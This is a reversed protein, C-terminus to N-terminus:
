AKKSAKEAISKKGMLNKVFVAAKNKSYKEECEEIQAKSKKGIPVGIIKRISYENATETAATIATAALLNKNFLNGTLAFFLEIFVRNSFYNVIRHLVRKKTVEDVRDTKEGKSQILEDNRYDIVSFYSPILTNFLLYSRVLEKTNLISTNINFGNSIIKSVKDDFNDVLKGKNTLKQYVEYVQQQSKISAPKAIGDTKLAWKGIKEGFGFPKKVIDFLANFFGLFSSAKSKAVIEYNIKDGDKMQNLLMDAFNNKGSACLKGIMEDFLGEDLKVKKYSIKDTFNQSKQAMKEFLGRAGKSYKALAVKGFGLLIISGFALAIKKLTGNAKTEEKKARVIPNKNEQVEPEKEEEKNNVTLGAFKQISNDSSVLKELEKNNMQVLNKSFEEQKGNQEYYKELAKKKSLPVLSKGKILRSVTEIVVTTLVLNAVAAGKNANTYKSLAGATTFCALAKLVGRGIEYGFRDKQAKKAKSDDDHHFRSTNYFDWSSFIGSVTTTALANLARESQNSYNGRSGGFMDLYFKGMKENIPEGALKLTQEKKLIGYLASLDKDSVAKLRGSSLFKSEKLTNLFKSNKFVKTKQLKDIIANPVDKILGPYIPYILKKVLRLLVPSEEFQISTLESGNKIFKAKISTNATAPIEQVKKILGSVENDFIGDLEKVVNKSLDINDIDKIFIKKLIKSAQEMFEKKPVFSGKFTPMSNVSAMSMKQIPSLSGKDAQHRYPKAFKNLQQGQIKINPM